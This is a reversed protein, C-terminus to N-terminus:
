VRAKEPGRQLAALIFSDGASHGHLHPSGRVVAAVVAGAVVTGLPAQVALRQLRLMHRGKQVQSPPPLQLLFFNRTTHSKLTKSFPPVM